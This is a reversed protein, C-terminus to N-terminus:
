NGSPTFPPKGDFISNFFKRVKGLFDSLWNM